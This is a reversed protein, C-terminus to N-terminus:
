KHPNQDLQILAMLLEQLENQINNLYISEKYIGLNQSKLAIITKLEMIELEIKTFSEHILKKGFEIDEKDKLKNFLSLIICSQHAMIPVPKFLFFIDEVVHIETTYENNNILYDKRKELKKCLEDIKTYSNYLDKPSYVKEQSSSTGHFIFLLSLAIYYIKRSM